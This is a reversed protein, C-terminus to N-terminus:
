SSSNGESIASNTTTTVFSATLDTQSRITTGLFRWACVTAIIVMAAILLYELSELGRRDKHLGSFLKRVWSM